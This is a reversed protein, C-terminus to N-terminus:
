TVLISFAISLEVGQLFSRVVNFRCNEAPSLNNGFTSAMLCSFSRWFSFCMVLELQSSLFAVKIKYELM